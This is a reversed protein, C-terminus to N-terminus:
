LMRAGPPSGSLHSVTGQVQREEPHSFLAEVTLLNYSAPLRTPKTARIDMQPRRGADREREGQSWSFIMSCRESDSETLPSVPSSSFWSPLVARQGRGVAAFYVWCLLLWSKLCPKRNESTQLLWVFSRSSFSSWEVSFFILRSKRKM